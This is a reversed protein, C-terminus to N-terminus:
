RKLKELTKDILKIQGHVTEGAEDLKERTEILTNKDYKEILLKIASKEWDPSHKYDQALCMSSVVIEPKDLMKKLYKEALDILENRFDEQMEPTWNNHFYTAVNPAVTVGCVYREAMNGEVIVTGLKVTKLKSEYRTSGWARGVIPCIERNKYKERMERQEKRKEKERKIEERRYLEEKLLSTTINQIKSKKKKM